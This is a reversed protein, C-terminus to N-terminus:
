TKLSQKDTMFFPYFARTRTLNQVLLLAHYQFVELLVNDYEVLSSSFHLFRTPCLIQPNTGDRLGSALPECWTCRTWTWFMTLERLLCSLFLFLSISKIQLGISFSSTPSMLERKSIKLTLYRCLRSFPKCRQKTKCNSHMVQDYLTSKKKTRGRCKGRCHFLGANWFLFSFFLSISRCWRSLYVDIRKRKKKSIKQKQFDIM